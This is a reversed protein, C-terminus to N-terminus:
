RLGFILIEPMLHVLTGQVCVVDHDYAEVRFHRIGESQGQEVIGVIDVVDLAMKEPEPHFLGGEKVSRIDVKSIFKPGFRYIM